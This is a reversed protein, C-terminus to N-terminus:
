GPIRMLDQLKKRLQNCAKKLIPNSETESMDLPVLWYDHPAKPCSKQLEQMLVFQSYRGIVNLAWLEPLDKKFVLIPRKDVPDVILGASLFDFVIFYLESEKRKLYSERPYRRRVCHEFIYQQVFHEQVCQLSSKAKVRAQVRIMHQKWLVELQRRTYGGNHAQRHCTPCVVALNRRTHTGGRSVPTLHHVDCFFKQGCACCSFDAAILLEDRTKQPIRGM